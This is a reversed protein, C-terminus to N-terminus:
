CRPQRDGLIINTQGADPFFTSNSRAHNFIKNAIVETRERFLAASFRRVIPANRLNEQHDLDIVNVIEKRILGKGDLNASRLGSKFQEPDQVISADPM